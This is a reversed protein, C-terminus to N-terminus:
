ITEKVDDPHMMDRVPNRANELRQYTLKWREADRMTSADECAQEARAILRFLDADFSNARIQRVSRRAM